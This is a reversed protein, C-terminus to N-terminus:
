AGALLAIRGGGEPFTVDWVRRGSGAVDRGLLTDPDLVVAPEPRVVSPDVALVRGWDDRVALAALPLAARTAWLVRELQPALPATADWGQLVLRLLDRHRQVARLMAIREGRKSGLSAAILGCL